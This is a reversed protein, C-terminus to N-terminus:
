SFLFVEVLFRGERHINCSCNEYLWIHLKLDTLYYCDPYLSIKKLKIQRKNVRLIKSTMLFGPSLAWLGASPAWSIVSQGLIQAKNKGLHVTLIKKAWTARWSRGARLSFTVKRSRLHLKTTTLAIVDRTGNSSRSLGWNGRSRLWRKAAARIWLEERRISAYVYKERHDKCASITALWAVEM